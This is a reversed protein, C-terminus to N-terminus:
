QRWELTETVTLRTDVFVILRFRVRDSSRRYIITGNKLHAQDLDVPKAFGGDEIDLLGKQASRIAPADRNWRVNLNDESRSVTLGLSFDASAASTAGRPGLGLGLQFGLFVGLFLFVLSLPLWVWGSSFKTATETHVKADPTALVPPQHRRAAITREERTSEPAVRTSESLVARSHRGEFVSQRPAPEQGTLERRRFPFDLPSASPFAGQERVFFGGVGAKTAFPRVLLAVAEPQPFHQDLLALDEADLGPEDRTASRYYGVVGMPRSADLKWHECTDAFTRAETEDLSYTPGRKHSCGVPEFDRIRVVSRGANASAPEVV